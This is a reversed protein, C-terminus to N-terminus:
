TAEYYEENTYYKVCIYHILSRYNGKTIVVNKEVIMVTNIIISDEEEGEEDEETIEACMICTTFNSMCFKVHDKLQICNSLIRDDEENRRRKTTNKAFNIEDKVLLTKVVCSHVWKM